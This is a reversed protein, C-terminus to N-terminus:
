LQGRFTSLSACRGSTLLCVTAAIVYAWGLINQRSVKKANMIAHRSSKKFNMQRKEWQARFQKYNALTVDESELM